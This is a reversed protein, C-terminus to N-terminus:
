HQWSLELTLLPFNKNQFSLITLDAHRKQTSHTNYGNRSGKLLLQAQRKSFSLTSVTIVSNKSKPEALSFIVSRTNRTRGM